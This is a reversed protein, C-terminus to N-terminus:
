GNNVRYKVYKTESDLELSFDYDNDNLIKDWVRDLLPDIDEESCDFQSLTSLMNLTDSELSQLREELGTIAEIPHQDFEDRGTLDPHYFTGGGGEGGGQSGGSGEGSSGSGGNIIETRSSFLQGNIVLRVGM